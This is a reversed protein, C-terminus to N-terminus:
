AAAACALVCPQAVRCRLRVRVLSVACRRVDFTFSSGGRPTIAARVGPTVPPATVLAPPTAAARESDSVPAFSFKHRDALTFRANRAADDLDPLGVEIRRPQLDGMAMSFDRATAVHMVVCARVRYARVRDSVPLRMGALQTANVFQLIVDGVVSGTHRLRWASFHQSFALTLQMVALAAM